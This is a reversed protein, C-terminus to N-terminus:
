SFCLYNYYIGKREFFCGHMNVLCVLICLLCGFGQDYKSILQMDALDAGWNNHKLSSYVRHKEFKRSIPKYLEEALQRNEFSIDTGTHTVVSQVHLKQLFNVDINLM